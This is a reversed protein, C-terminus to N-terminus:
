PECARVYKMRLDFLYNELAVQEDNDLNGETKEQLMTLLDISHKAHELDRRTEGTIPNPIEGINMMVQIAMGSILTVFSAPPLPLPEKPTEPSDPPSEKSV